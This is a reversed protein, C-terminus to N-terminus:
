LLWLLLWPQLLLRPLQPSATLVRCHQRLLSVM